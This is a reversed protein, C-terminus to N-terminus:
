EGSGAQKGAKRRIVEDIYKVGSGTYVNPKRAGRILAAVHGVDEKNPSEVTIVNKEVNFKMNERGKIVVPHSYGLTMSIDNGKVEARYGPGNVELQRSWGETVGHMMNRIHSRLTGQMMKSPKTENKNTVLIGDDTQKVEVNRTLRRSLSGKPGKVEILDRDLKVEVGQPIEVPLRGLRGM